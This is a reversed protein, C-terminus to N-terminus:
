NMNTVSSNEFRSVDISKLKTCCHFLRYMDKVLSTNINGFIIKELNICHNFMSSMSTVKSFDLNSSDIQIISSLGEFMNECSELFGDFKIRVNNSDNKFEYSKINSSIIDGNIIVEFPALYFNSNIFNQNGKGTLVM